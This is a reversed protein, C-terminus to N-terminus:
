NKEEFEDNDKDKTLCNRNQYLSMKKLYGKITGDNVISFIFANSVAETNVILKKVLMDVIKKKETISISAVRTLITIRGIKIHIDWNGDPKFQLSIGFM